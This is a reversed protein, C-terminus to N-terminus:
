GRDITATLVGSVLRPHIRRVVDFALMEAAGDNGALGGGFTAEALFTGFSRGDRDLLKCTAVYRRHLVAADGGTAFEAHVILMLDFRSLEGNAEAVPSCAGRLEKITACLADLLNNSLTDRAYGKKLLVGVRIGQWPSPEAKYPKRRGLARATLALVALSFATGVAVPPGYTAQVFLLVVVVFFWGFPTLPNWTNM